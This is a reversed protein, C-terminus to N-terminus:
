AGVSEALKRIASMTMEYDLKVQEFAPEIDEGYDHRDRLVDALVSASQYMKTLSLNQGVGKLTHAARFAEEINKVELSDCLLKYSSDALIKILFKQVREETKLRSMVEDYDAGMAEYCEKLTM